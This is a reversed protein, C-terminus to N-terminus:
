ISVQEPGPTRSRRAPDRPFALAIPGIYADNLHLPSKSSGTLSESRRVADITADLLGIPTSFCTSVGVGAAPYSLPM